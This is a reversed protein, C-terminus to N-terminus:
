REQIKSKKDNTARKKLESLFIDANFSKGISEPYQINGKISEEEINKLLSDVSIWKKNDFLSEESSKNINPLRKKTLKASNSLIDRTTKIEIERSM